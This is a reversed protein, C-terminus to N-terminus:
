AAIRQIAAMNCMFDDILQKAAIYSKREYMRGDYRIYYTNNELWVNITM